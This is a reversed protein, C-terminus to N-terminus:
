DGPAVIRGGTGVSSRAAASQAFVLIISEYPNLDLAVTPGRDTVVLPVPRVRGNMPDWAQAAPATVRFTARVAKPANATNAIFYVDADGLARHVFGIQPEAPEFTVDPQLRRALAQVLEAESTLLIGKADPGEFLRRSIERVTRQDQETALFGPVRSPAKQLAIVIGGANAFSELTQMTAIPIREVAPLIVVRYKVDGFALVHGAVKGRMALLGDDMFDLNYGADLIRGVLDRGLLRSVAANMSVRGPVFGAWADSEPLYLAIDNAPTGQRMMFSVRQLYRAVDPMVIWWPNKENFVASAYFRWGPYEVGEATYPWGHGILQNIGQLFHMDAEAKMDLPTALFVAPAAM